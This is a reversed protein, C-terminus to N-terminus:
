FTVSRKVIKEKAAEYQQKLEAVIEALSQVQTIAGVGQGASWVDKWARINPNGLESFDIKEKRQLKEPDLGVQKISPILYNANVGSFADTYIIDEVRSEIIMKKYAENALSEKAPIFRSGLYAFDAGLIEAALIDEGKSMAGALVVPGDWFTKVEHIFAFPSYTGGHGGAGSCVLVLGDVGKEIAKKAFKVNIVDSFVVGGYQHAIEVVPSPDGLSTIILPPQYKKILQLDETFRKNSRHSIFNIGWPAIKKDPNATKIRDWETTIQEFWGELIENTRANLAPFTGIIGAECARLVMNPDNILFMPAMIVPITTSEKFKEISTKTM